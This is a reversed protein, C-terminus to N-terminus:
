SPPPSCGPRNSEKLKSQGEPAEAGDAPNERVGFENRRTAAGNRGLAVWREVGELEHRSEREQGERELGRQGADDSLGKTSSSPGSDSGGPIIDLSQQAARSM